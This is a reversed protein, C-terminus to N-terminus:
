RPATKVWEEHRVPIGAAETDGPHFIFRYRFTVEDAAPIKLNGTGAEKKEFDHVGFPNAAFLGYDRVHWWTPHRPNSPHDLIAVGMVEGGVPGVYDCWAARRGWTAGDRDGESNIIRGEGPRGKPQTLRMSEAIRIAMTGEKTDGLVLDGATAQVTIEFDVIRQPGRPAHFRLTRRDTAITRGDKSVWRNRATIVGQDRGSELVDFGEHVIRGADASESWFDVGNADGHAWWLGRHHPHDRDEGGPDEQPWRRTFHQGDPGLIPFLFPRSVDQYRYETFPKGGLTVRVVGNTAVVGVANPTEGDAACLLPAMLGCILGAAGLLAAREQLGRFRSFKM